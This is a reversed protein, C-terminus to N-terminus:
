LGESIWCALFLFRKALVTARAVEKDTGEVRDFEQLEDYCYRAEYWMFFRRDELQVYDSWVM